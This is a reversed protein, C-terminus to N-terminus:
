AAPANRWGIYSDVRDTCVADVGLNSLRKWQSSENATWVVLRGGCSKVDAVLREDVFDAHQWLDNAGAARMAACSDIPYGVQLIGTRVSPILELMRKVVRHDFSHVAYNDYGVFHRRLCRTVDNEIGHPKIEIYVRAQTGIEELVSDLRPIPVDGPLLAKDIARSESGAFTMKESEGVVFDFDHHVYIVGDASAHVDLEIGEAGAKIADLFAPISNEPAASRLGRHSIAEPFPRNSYM